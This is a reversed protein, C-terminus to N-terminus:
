RGGADENRRASSGSDPPPPDRLTSGVLGPIERGVVLRVSDGRQVPDGPDPSQGFVASVNLLSFRRDVDAIRLGLVRLRWRAELEALGELDPLPFTPPGLSVLLLVDSPVPIQVDSVPETRVIQGAPLTSEVTDVQVNFGSEAMLAAARDEQWTRVDPVLRIEPGVSVAIRLAAGPLATPGPLPSQGVVVGAPITPHRLSDIREVVLGSDALVALASQLPTGRLDPVDQLDTPLEPLPFLVKTATLYGGGTGAAVVVLALVFKRPWRGGSRSRKKKARRAFIPARRRKPKPKPKKAKAKTKTKAQGKSRPSRRRRRISSGLDM